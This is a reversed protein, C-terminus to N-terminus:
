LLRGRFIFEELRRLMPLARLSPFACLMAAFYTYWLRFDPYRAYHPLSRSGLRWPKLGAFHIGNLQEPRPYGGISGYRIDICHWSGSWLLTALQMEPWPFLRFVLRDIAPDKLAAWIQAWAILSPDLRWIAANIGMNGPDTRVRDTIASPIAAGHPCIPEYHHHWCWKGDTDTERLPNGDADLELGYERKELPIGAPAPLDFLEDFGSLPLMDADLLLLRRYHCPLDGDPGLRLAQFRTMLLDRDSRGGSVCSKKRIEQVAIVRDYLLSLAAKAAASVSETALCVLDKRTEGARLAYALVLAGPLYGDNRMVFTCYADNAKM